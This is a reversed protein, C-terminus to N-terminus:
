YGAYCKLWGSCSLQSLLRLVYVSFSHSPPILFVQLHYVHRLQLGHCLFLLSYCWLFQKLNKKYIINAKMLNRCSLAKLKQNIMINVNSRSSWQCEEQDLVSSTIWGYLITLYTNTNLVWMGSPSFNQIIMRDLYDLCYTYIFSCISMRHSELMRYCHIYAQLCACRLSQMFLYLKSTDNLLKEEGNKEEEEM